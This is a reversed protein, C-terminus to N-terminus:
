PSFRNMLNMKGDIKSLIAVKGVKAVISLAFIAAEQVEKVESKIIECLTVYGQYKVVDQVTKLMKKGNYAIMNLITSLVTSDKSEKLIELFHPIASREVLTRAVQGAKAISFRYLFKLIETRIADDKTKELVNYAIIHSHFSFM